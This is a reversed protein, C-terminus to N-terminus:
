LEVGGRGECGWECEEAECLCAARALSRFRLSRWLRFGRRNHPQCPRRAPLTNHRSRQLRNNLGIPHLRGRDPHSGCRTRSNIEQQRTAACHRHRIAGLTADRDALRPHAPAARHVGHRGHCCDVVERDDTIHKSLLILSASDGKDFTSFPTDAFNSGEGFCQALPVLHVTVMGTRDDRNRSVSCVTPEDSFFCFRTVPGLRSGFESLRWCRRPDGKRFTFLVRTKVAETEPPPM